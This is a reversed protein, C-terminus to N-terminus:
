RVAIGIRGGLGLSPDDEARFDLVAFVVEVHDVRSRQRLIGRLLLPCYVVEGVALKERRVIWDVEGAAEHTPNRLCSPLAAREVVNDAVLLDALRATSIFAALVYHYPRSPREHVGAIGDPTLLLLRHGLGVPGRMPTQLDRTSPELPVDLKLRFFSRLREPCLHAPM